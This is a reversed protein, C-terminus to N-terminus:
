QISCLTLILLVSFIQTLPHSTVVVANSRSRESIESTRLESKLFFSTVAVTKLYPSHKNINENLLMAENICAQALTRSASQSLPLVLLILDGELSKYGFVDCQAVSILRSLASTVDQISVNRSPLFEQIDQVAQQSYLVRLQSGLFM